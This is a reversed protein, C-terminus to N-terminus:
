LEGGADFGAGKEVAGARDARGAQGQVQDTLLDGVLVEQAVEGASRLEGAQEEVGVAVGDPGALALLVVLGAEQGVQGLEVDLDDGPEAVAEGGVGAVAQVEGGVVLGDAKVDEQGAVVGADGLGVQRVGSADFGGGQEDAVGLLGVAVQDGVAVDGDLAGDAGVEV